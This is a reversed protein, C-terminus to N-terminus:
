LVPQSISLSYRRNLMGRSPIYSPYYRTLFATFADPLGQLDFDGTVTANFENSVATLKKLGDVYNSTVILSDFSLRKGNSLLTADTIRASGLLDSLSSASLNLDFKGSLQMDQPTIQLAKLNAHAIDATVNFLPKTGTLDVLGKVHLDANPDKMVFDGNFLRNTLNGKATINQYTYDGYQIRRIVGDIDMDLTKWKFGKGKVKGHFDVLGLKPSNIFSGLQFGDTSINGAYVPEGNKPFKMNLDTQMTGLNTQITGYTVFDNIFGTYSGRFRLYTLKSLNPTEIDRIAPIFNVADAYTTRLEGDAINILTEDINPLGVLSLAGHVYTNNGAWVELDKSALADVTGKV